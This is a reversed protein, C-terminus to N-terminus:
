SKLRAEDLVEEILRYHATKDLTENVVRGAALVALDAVQARLEAIARQKDRNIEGRARVLFQEAEAKAQTQAEDKIRAAIQEARAIIAQGDKRGQEVMAAHEEKAREAAVKMEEAHQLGERIKAARQDLMGLIPKYLLMWLLVMLLGFNIFQAVLGQWNIGLQDL